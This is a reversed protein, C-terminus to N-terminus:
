FRGLCSFDLRFRGFISTEFRFVATKLLFDVKLPEKEVAVAPKM